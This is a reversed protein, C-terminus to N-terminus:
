QARTSGREPIISYLEFRRDIARGLFFGATGGIGMIAAGTVIYTYVEDSGRSTLFGGLGVAVGAPIPVLALLRGRRRPSRVQVAAVSERPITLSGQPHARPNSTRTVQANILDATVQLPACEIRTGDPLVIRLTHRPTVSQSFENWTIRKAPSEANIALAAFCVWLSSGIISKKFISM